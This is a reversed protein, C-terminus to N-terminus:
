EKTHTANYAIDHKLKGNTSATKMGIWQHHQVETFLAPYVHKVGKYTNCQVCRRAEVQWQNFSDEYLDQVYVLFGMLDSSGM